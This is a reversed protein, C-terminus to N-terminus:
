MTALVLWRGVGGEYILVVTTTRAPLVIDAGTLTKIRNAAVSGASENTLTLAMVTNNFLVLVKGSAGSDFGGVSYAGVPGTIVVFSCGLVPVDENAGAVLVLPIPRLRLFIDTSGGLNSVDGTLPPFRETRLYSSPTWLFPDLM